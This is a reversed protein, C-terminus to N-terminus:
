DLPSKIGGYKDCDAVVLGCEEVAEVSSCWYNPGQTCPDSGPITNNTFRQSLTSSLLGLFTILLLMNKM